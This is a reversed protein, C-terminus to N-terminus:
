VKDCRKTYAAAGWFLLISLVVFIIDTM